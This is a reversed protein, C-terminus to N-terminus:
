TKTFIASQPIVEKYGYHMLIDRETEGSIMYGGKALCGGAKELLIKRFEKKYYFLLNACIILDFDGYISSPPCNLGTNSLDFVSFDINDKLEQKVIYTNDQHVFWRKIRKLTLNKLAEYSYHGLSAENVLSESQDTAFIRYNIKEDGGNKLEELVMALSYSEQGNACAASWIRIEKRKIEKKKQILSPVILRELVAFTLPNRFFESYSIQLSNLFLLSEDPFEAILKAYEEPLNCQTENMRRRLSRLLFSEDYRAVESQPLHDIVLSKLQLIMQRTLENTPDTNM